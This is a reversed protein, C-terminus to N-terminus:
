PKLDITVTVSGLTVTDGAEIRAGRRAALLRGNIATGNTSALDEVYLADDEVYFRAHERSVSPDAIVHTSGVPDRGVIAGAPSGLADRQLNLALPAGEGDTGTLLCDFPAPEPMDDIRRQAEAADREASAARAEAAVMSRRKRRASTAWWILLGLLLVGGAAAGWLAARRLRERSRREEEELRRAEEAERAKRQTEEEAQQAAARAKKAEEARKKAAEKAKKEAERAKKAEEARKKAAEKAKKEAERAKKAEEAQKKAREEASACRDAAQKFTVGLRTLRSAIENAALAFMAGEPEAYRKPTVISSHKPDPVNLAVIRGCEDIVPSGYDFRGVMATHRLFLARKDAVTSIVASERVFGAVFRVNGGPTEWTVSFVRRNAEIAAASLPLGERQLGPVRLVALGSSKQKMRQTAPLENGGAAIVTVRPGEDLVAASTLVDGQGSVVVGAWNAPVQNEDYVRVTVVHKKVADADLWSPLQAAAARPLLAVTLVAAMLLATAMAAGLGPGAPTRGRRPFAPSSGARRATKPSVVGVASLGRLFFVHLPAPRIYSLRRDILM